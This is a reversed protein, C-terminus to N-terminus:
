MHPPAVLSVSPLPLGVVPQIVHKSTKLNSKNIPIKLFTKTEIQVQERNVLNAWYNRMDKKSVRFSSVLM